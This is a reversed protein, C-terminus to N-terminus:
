RSEEKSGNNRLIEVVRDEIYEPCRFVVTHNERGATVLEGIFTAATDADQKLISARMAQKHALNHRNRLNPERFFYRAAVGGAAVM